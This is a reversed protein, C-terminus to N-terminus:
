NRRMFLFWEALLLVMGVSLVGKWPSNEQARGAHGALQTSTPTRSSAPTLHAESPAELNVAAINGKGGPIEFLGAATPAPGKWLAALGPNGVPYSLRPFKDRLLHELINFLLIPIFFNGQVSPHDPDMAVWVHSIQRGDLTVVEESLLSGEVSEVLPTGPLTGPKMCKVPVADWNAFKLLPHDAEWPLIEGPQLSGQGPLFACTPLKRAEIPLSGLGLVADPLDAPFAAGIRTFSILPLAKPLRLLASDSPAMIGVSPKLGPDSFYWRDDALSLNREPPADLVITGRKAAFAPLDVSHVGQYPLTLSQLRSLRGDEGQFSLSIEVPVFNDSLVSLTVEVNKGSEDFALDAGVIAVNAGERGFTEVTLATQPMFDRRIQLDPTDTLLFIEDPSLGELDRLLRLVRDSGPTAQHGPILKMVANAVGETADTYRVVPMLSHGISYLAVRGSFNRCLEAARKQAMSFRSPKVDVAQMSASVDLIIIRSSQGSSWFSGIPRATALVALVISLIQLLLFLSNHFRQLFSNPNVRSLVIRWIANSPVPRTRPRTKLFYLAIVPGLLLLGALFGPNLFSVGRGRLM